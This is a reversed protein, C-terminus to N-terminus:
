TYLHPLLIVLEVAAAISQVGLFSWAEHSAAGVM